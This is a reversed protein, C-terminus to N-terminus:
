EIAPYYNINVGVPTDALSYGVTEGNVQVTHTQTTHAQLSGLRSNELIDNLIANEIEDMTGIQSVDGGAHTRNYAHGSNIRIGTDDLTTFRRLDNGEGSSTFDFAKTAVPLEIVTETTLPTTLTTQATTGASDTNFIPDGNSNTSLNGNGDLVPTYVQGDDSTVTGDANKTYGAPPDWDDLANGANTYIVLDTGTSASGSVEDLADDTNKIIDSVLDTGSKAAKVIIGGGTSANAISFTFGASIEGLIEAAGAYDGAAELEAAKELQAVLDEYGVEITGVPDTVADLITLM